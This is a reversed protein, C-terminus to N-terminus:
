KGVNIVTKMETIINSMRRTAMTYMLSNKQMEALEESLPEQKLEESSEFKECEEKAESEIINICQANVQEEQKKFENELEFKLQKKYLKFVRRNLKKRRKIKFKIKRIQHSIEAKESKELYKRKKNYLQKEFKLQHMLKESQIKYEQMLNELMQLLSEDNLNESCTAWKQLAKSYFINIDVIKKFDKNLM